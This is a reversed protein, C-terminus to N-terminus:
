FTKAITLRATTPELPHIHVDAVGDATEGPLRDVYWYEMANAHKNLLNYVDLGVTWGSGFAYHVDGNWEGYSSGNVQGRPTPANACSSAGRFDTVAASNVCPGSSLPFDGLYRYALSGSWPGLNKVYVNLAGTAFPANPLFYGLHGTGDDFPTTYRAHDASYSGYFELWRLAQYTINIEYGRRHSGPGATDQGIDPNYETESQADLNYLAVTAAVKHEFLQQRLGVEEGTQSAILPAGPVGEIKAQNVGRLDNSHFGRGASLYFETTDVPTFIVSAKPEPLARSATGYNTGTDTGYMYDERFGIVSRLWYNWHSTAQVYGAMSSLRVQDIESYAAPYNVAALQAATLPVRDETPLRSVDNFDYRSHFGTLLDNDFGFL